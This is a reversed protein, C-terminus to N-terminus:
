RLRNHLKELTRRYKTRTTHYNIGLQKSIEILKMDTTNKLIFIEKDPSKLRAIEAEIIAREQDSIYRDELSITNHVIGTALQLSCWLARMKDKHKDYSIHRVITFMWQFLKEEDRLQWCRTAGRILAEQMVDEADEHNGMIRKAESFLVREMQRTYHQLFWAWREEPTSDEKTPILWM